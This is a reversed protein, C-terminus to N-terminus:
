FEPINILTGTGSGVQKSLADQITHLLKSVRPTRNLAEGRALADIVLLRMWTPPHWNVGMEAGRSTEGPFEQKIREVSRVFQTPDRGMVSLTRATVADCELEIRSLENLAELVGPSDTEKHGVLSAYLEKAAIGREAFQAHAVEHTVFGLLEDDNRARAILGTTIVLVAGSDIMVAPTRTNILFITYDRGYLSLLPRFLAKLNADVDPNSNRRARWAAPFNRIIAERFPPSAARSASRSWRAWVAVQGAPKGQRYKTIVDNADNITLHSDDPAGGKVDASQQAMSPLWLILVLLTSIIQPLHRPAAQKIYLGDKEKFTPYCM